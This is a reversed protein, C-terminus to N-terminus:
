FAGPVPDDASWTGAPNTGNEHWVNGTLVVNPSESSIHSHQWNHGIRNDTASVNTMSGGEVNFQMVNNNALLWNEYVQVNSVAAPESEIIIASNSKHLTDDPQLDMWINNYRVILGDAGRAQLGDSHASPDFATNGMDHVYCYEILASYRVILADGSIDHMNLRRIQIDTNPGVLSPGWPTVLGKTGGTIEGDEFYAAGLWTDQAGNICYGNGAAPDSNVRFNRVLFDQTITSAFGINGLTINFNEIIGPTATGSPNYGTSILADTITFGSVPTLAGEDTPGTNSAVPRVISSSDAITLAFDTM